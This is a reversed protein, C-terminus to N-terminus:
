SLARGSHCRLHDDFFLYRAKRYGVLGNATILASIALMLVLAALTAGTAELALGAAAVTIFIFGLPVLPTAVHQILFAIKAPRRESRPAPTDPM